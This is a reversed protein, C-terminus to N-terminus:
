FEENNMGVPSSRDDVGGDNVGHTPVLGMAQVFTTEGNTILLIPEPAPAFNNALLAAGTNGDLGANPVVLGALIVHGEGEVQNIVGNVIEELLVEVHNDSEDDSRDDEIIAELNKSAGKNRDSSSNEFTHKSVTIGDENEKYDALGGETFENDEVDSYFEESEQSKVSGSDEGSSNDVMSYGRCRTVREGEGEEVREEVREEVIEVRAEVVANELVAPHTHQVNNQQMANLMATYIMMQVAGPIVIPNMINHYDIQRDRELMNLIAQNVVFVQAAPEWVAMLQGNAQAVMPYLAADEVYDDPLIEVRGANRQASIRAQNARFEALQALIIIGRDRNQPTVNNTYGAQDVYLVPGGGNHIIHGGGVIVAGNIATPQQRIANEVIDVRGENVGVPVTDPVGNFPEFNNHENIDYLPIQGNWIRYPNFVHDRYTRYIYNMVQYIVWAVFIDPRLFNNGGDSGGLGGPKRM